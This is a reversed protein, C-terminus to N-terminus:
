SSKADPLLSGHRATVWAAIQSRTNFGLKTLIHQVHNEATREAIHLNAAIQRNTLGQAVLDAIQRERRSLPGGGDRPRLRARVADARGAVLRMGIRDAIAKAETAAVAAEDDDGPQGRELLIEALRCQSEATCPPLGSAANAAVAARLHDIGTDLHDCAAATVGLYYQTSGRTAIVGAGGTVYLDAHPLLSRYAAAAGARDGLAAAIAGRIADVPLQAFPPQRSTSPPLLAYLRAAEDRRGFALHWEAVPVWGGPQDAEPVEVPETLDDGTSAAIVLKTM